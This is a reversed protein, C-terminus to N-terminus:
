ERTLWCVEGGCAVMRGRYNGGLDLRLLNGKAYRGEIRTMRCVYRQGHGIRVLGVLGVLGVSIPIV